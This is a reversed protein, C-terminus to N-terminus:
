EEKTAIKLNLNNMWNRYEKDYANMTDERYLYWVTLVGPIIGIPFLLITSVAAVAMSGIRAWDAMFILFLCCMLAGVGIILFLPTYITLLAVSDEDVPDVIILADLLAFGILSYLFGIIGIYIAIIFRGRPKSSSPKLFDTSKALVCWRRM